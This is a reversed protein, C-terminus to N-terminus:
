ELTPFEPFKINKPCDISEYSIGNLHNSNVYDRDVFSFELGTFSDPCDIMRLSNDYCIIIEKLCIDDMGACTAVVRKDYAKRLTDILTQSSIQQKNSPKINAKALKHLTDADGHLKLAKFFYDNQSNIIRDEYACSGRRVWEQEWLFRSSINIQFLDPWLNELKPRINQFVIPHSPDSSSSVGILALSFTPALQCDNRPSASSTMPWFGGIFLTKEVFDCPYGIIHCFCAPWVQKLVIYHSRSADQEYMMPINQWLLLAVIVVVGLGVLIWNIISGRGM